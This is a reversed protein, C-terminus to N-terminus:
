PSDALCCLTPFVLTDLTENIGHLAALRYRHLHNPGFVFSGFWLWVSGFLFFFVM